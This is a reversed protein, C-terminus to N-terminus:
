TGRKEVLSREAGSEETGQRFGRRNGISRSNRHGEAHHHISPLNLCNYQIDTINKNLDKTMNGNKDYAYEDAQKVADKFEFGGNYATATAADDTRFLQFIQRLQFAIITIIIFFLLVFCQVKHILTIELYNLSHDMWSLLFPSYHPQALM